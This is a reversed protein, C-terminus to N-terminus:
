SWTKCNSREKRVARRADPAMALDVLAVVPPFAEVELFLLRVTSVFPKPPIPPPM